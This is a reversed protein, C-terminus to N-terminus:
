NNSSVLLENSISQLTSSRDVVIEENDRFSTNLIYGINVFVLVLMITSIFIATTNTRPFRAVDLKNQLILDWNGSPSINEISEFEKLITNIDKTKM